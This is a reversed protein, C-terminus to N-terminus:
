ENRFILLKSDGVTTQEAIDADFQPATIGNRFYRNGIFIRAEDWLDVDIFSQLLKKGGEIIVSQINKKYLIELVKVLLNDEFDIQICELNEKSGTAQETFLITSQSGDFLHSNNDLSLNRDFFIRIPQNGDWDRVNLKPNDKEVTNTGVMIAAEESRWKHVLIRSQDNSIWYPQAPTNKIRVIDIYGDLTQAWKLILYPRKKEHFTFFRRNLLRGENELLGVSVNCGAKKLKEIGNGNVAHFSDLCSIYVEPIQHQIILDACPPTKGVHSCPELSIYITSQKLLEKNKVSAIANVEAHPEGYKCHYGEGIILDNHVVISGVMPNPAVNGIGNQALEFCRKMIKEHKTLNEM